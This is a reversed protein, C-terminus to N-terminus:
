CWWLYFQPFLILISLFLFSDIWTHLSLLTFSFSFFFHRKYSWTRYHHKYFVAIPGEYIYIYIYKVSYEPMHWLKQSLCHGYITSRHFKVLWQDRFNLDNEIYTLHNFENNELLKFKQFILLKITIILM